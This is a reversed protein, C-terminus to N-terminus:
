ITEEFMTSFNNDDAVDHLEGEIDEVDYTDSDKIQQEFLPSTNLDPKKKVMASIYRELFIRNDELILDGKDKPADFFQNVIDKFKVIDMPIFEEVFRDTRKDVAGHLDFIKLAQHVSKIHLYTSHAMLVGYSLGDWASKFKPDGNYCLEGIKMGDFFPSGMIPWLETSGVLDKSDPMANMKHSLKGKGLPGGELAYGTYIRGKAVSVFPSAADFSLRVNSGYRERIKKQIITYALGAKIKGVGLIHIWSTNELLGSEGMDRLIRLQSFMDRVSNGAFAWGELRRDGYEAPDSYHKYEQYWDWNEEANRGQLVNLFDTKGPVRHEIMTKINAHTFSKCDEITNITPAKENFIGSTPMDLIMSYDATHELWRTIKLCTEKIAESDDWNLKLVGSCIQFGGSDGVIIRGPERNQIMSEQVNSREIDLQAHGASYLAHDYRYLGKSSNFFDLGDISGINAPVPRKIGSDGKSVLKSYLSSISPLFVAWEDDFNLNEVNNEEAM